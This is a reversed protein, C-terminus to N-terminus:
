FFLVFLLVRAACTKKKKKKKPLQPHKPKQTTIPHSDTNQNQTVTPSNIKKTNMNTKITRSILTIRAIYIMFIKKVSFTRVHNEHKQQLALAEKLERLIEERNERSKGLDTLCKGAIKKFISLSDTHMQKRLYPAIMDDLQERDHTKTLLHYVDNNTLKRGSLVEFFIWGLSYVDDKRRIYGYQDSIGASETFYDYAHAAGLCIRLRQSWTLTPDELYQDLSGNVVHEMVVMRERDEKCFGVVSATNIHQLRSLRHIELMFFEEQPPSLPHFRWIVVNISVNSRVLLGQYVDASGGRKILKEEAFDNTAILIDKLQFRLHALKAELDSDEFSM